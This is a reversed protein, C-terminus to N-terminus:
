YNYHTCGNETPLISVYMFIYSFFTECDIHNINGNWLFNYKKKVILSLEVQIITNNSKTLSKDKYM